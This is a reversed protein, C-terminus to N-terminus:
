CVSARPSLFNTSLMNKLRITYNVPAHDSLSEPPDMWRRTARSKLRTLPDDKLCIPVGAHRFGSSVGTPPM